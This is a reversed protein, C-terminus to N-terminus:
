VKTTLTVNLSESVMHYPICYSQDCKFMSPCIHPLSSTPCDKINATNACYLPDGYMDRQFVCAHENPYCASDKDPSCRSWGIPCAGLDKVNYQQRHLIPYQTNFELMNLKLMNYWEYLPIEVGEIEIFMMNEKDRDNSLDKNWQCSKEDSNDECHRRNDCKYHHLIYTGDVCKFFQDLHRSYNHLPASQRLWFRQGINVDCDNVKIWTYTVQSSCNLCLKRICTFNSKDQCIGIENTLQYAWKSFVNEETMVPFLKHAPERCKNKLASWTTNLLQYCIGNIYYQYPYLCSVNNPVIRSKRLVKTIEHEKECIIYPSKVTKNCELFYWKGFVFLHGAVFTCLRSRNGWVATSIIADSDYQHSTHFHKANM